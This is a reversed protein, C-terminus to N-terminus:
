HFARIARIDPVRTATIVTELSAGLTSANIPKSLIANAGAETAGSVLYPLDVPALLLVPLDPNPSLRCDRLERVVDLGSVQGLDYDILAVDPRGTNALVIAERGDASEYVENVGLGKLLTKIVGRVARSDDILLVSLGELPAPM